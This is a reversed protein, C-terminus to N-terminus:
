YLHPKVMNVLITKIQQGQSGGAKAEWLSPIVPTLWWAWGIAYNSKFLLPHSVLESSISFLDEWFPFNVQYKEITSVLLIQSAIFYCCMYKFTCKIPPSKYKGMVSSLNLQNKKIKNCKLNQPVHSSCALNNCLYICPLTTQQRGGWWRYRANRGMNDRGLEGGEATGGRTGGLLGWHTISGERHGRTRMTWCRGILSFMCHKTKQEQSTQQSHHNGSEDM